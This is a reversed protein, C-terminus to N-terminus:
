SPRRMEFTESVSCYDFSGLRAVPQYRTVDVLGDEIIDDKIHVGICEGIVIHNGQGQASSPLEVIKWVKCELAAPSQAVRPPRVLQSPDATLGVEKMENVGYEFNGSTKIMEERLEWSVINVVFEDVELVNRYTDKWNDQGPKSNCSFMVMPPDASVGNFFSFPALNIKGANNISSIWGIPRPSVLANFPNHTLPAQRMGSKPEFFM